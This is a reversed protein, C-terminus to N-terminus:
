KSNIAYIVAVIVAGVALVGGIAAAAYGFGPDDSKIGVGKESGPAPFDISTAM